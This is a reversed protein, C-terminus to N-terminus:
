SSLLQLDFGREVMWVLAVLGILASGAGLVGRQYVRTSRLAWALPLFLAVLAVQGLEVGLNFGLLPAALSGSAFGGDKLAGAFGFGHVLGFAFTLKWRGHSVVPRLNNLAAFVVSAAILTEVGRSPPTWVDLVALALTISHAVTFATVVRLVDLSAMRLSPAAQWGSANPRVLVAPLLLALLFLIHDAGILIHHVGEAVFGRWGHTPADGAPAIRQSADGPVLVLSRVGGPTQVRAIGRHTPDSGAFLRYGLQLAQVPAECRWERMLVVYAGDSHTDLQPSGQPHSVCHAGEAHLVVAQSAMADIDAWRTRVEGWSLAGDENADLVLERDLDRLAIDLRQVIRPGDLELQLYADSAKHAHAQTLGLLLTFATALTRLNM